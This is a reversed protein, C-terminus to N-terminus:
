RCRVTGKAELSSLQMGGLSKRDISLDVACELPAQATTPRSHMAFAFAIGAVVGIGLGFLFEKRM